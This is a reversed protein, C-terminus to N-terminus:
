TFQRTVIVGVDFVLVFVFCLVGSVVRANAQEGGEGSGERRTM